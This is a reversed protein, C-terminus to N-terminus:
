TTVTSDGRPPENSTMTPGVPAMRPVFPCSVGSVVTGPEQIADGVRAGKTRQDDIAVQPLLGRSSRDVRAIPLAVGANGRPPPEREDVDRAM